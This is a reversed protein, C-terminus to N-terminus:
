LIDKELEELSKEKLELKEYLYLKHGYYVDYFNHNNFILEKLYGEREIDLLEKLYDKYYKKM